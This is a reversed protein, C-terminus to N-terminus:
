AVANKKSLLMEKVANISDIAENVDNESRTATMTETPSIATESCCRLLRELVTVEKEDMRDESALWNLVVRAASLSPIDILSGTIQQFLIGCSLVLAKEVDREGCLRLADMFSQRLAFCVQKNKKKDFKKM